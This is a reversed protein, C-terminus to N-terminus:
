VPRSKREEAEVFSIDEIFINYVMRDSRHQKMLTSCCACTGMAASARVHFVFARTNLCFQFEFENYFFRLSGRFIGRENHIYVPGLKIGWGIRLRLEIYKVYVYSCM